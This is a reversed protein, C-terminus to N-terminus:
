SPAQDGQGTAAAADAHMQQWVDLDELDGPATVFPSLLTLFTSVEGPHLGQLTRVIVRLGSQAKQERANHALALKLREIELGQKYREAEKSAIERELEKMSMPKGSRRRPKRAAPPQNPVTTTTTTTNM